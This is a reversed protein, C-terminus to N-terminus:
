TEFNIKTSESKNILSSTISSSPDNKDALMFKNECLFSLQRSLSRGLTGLNKPDTRALSDFRVSPFFESM